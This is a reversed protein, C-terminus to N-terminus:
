VGAFVTFNERLILITRARKRIRPNTSQAPHLIGLYRFVVAPLELGEVIVGNVVSVGCVVTGTGSTVEVTIRFPSSLTYALL